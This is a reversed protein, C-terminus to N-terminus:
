SDRKRAVVRYISTLRPKVHVLEEVNMEATLGPFKERLENGSYHKLDCAVQPSIIVYQHFHGENLPFTGNRHNVALENARVWAPESWGKGFETMEVLEMNGRQLIDRMEDWTRVGYLGRAEILMRDNDNFDARNKVFCYDEIYMLGNPKLARCTNLIAEENDIHVFVGIIMAVDYTNPEYTITCADGQAHVIKNEIKLLKNIHVSGDVLGQVYDFGFVEIGKTFHLYRSTGGLGIGVELYKATVAPSYDTFFKDIGEHSGPHIIDIKNFDIYTAAEGKEQSIADAKEYFKKIYDDQYCFFNVWNTNEM